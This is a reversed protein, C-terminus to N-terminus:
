EQIPEPEEPFEIFKDFTAVFDKHKVNQLREKEFQLKDRVRDLIDEPYGEYHLQLEYAMKRYQPGSLM